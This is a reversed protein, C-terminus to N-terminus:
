KNLVENRLENAKKVALDRAEPRSNLEVDDTEKANIDVWFTKIIKNDNTIEINIGVGEFYDEIVGYREAPSMALFRIKAVNDGGRLSNTKYTKRQEPLLYWIWFDKLANGTLEM